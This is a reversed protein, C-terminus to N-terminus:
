LPDAHTWQAISWTRAVATAQHMYTCAIEVGEHPPSSAGIANTEGYQEM